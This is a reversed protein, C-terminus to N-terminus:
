GAVADLFVRVEQNFRDAAEANSLHGVGPMVVLKSAPIQSHLDRAVNLDSRVDQDGYLLLTPVNIKPLVSRLDALALARTIIKMGDPHFEGMIAAAERRVEPAVAPTLLGPLYKAVVEDAPRDLDALTQRLRQEVVPVPFSGSWGAYAGALVLSRPIDPHRRYLELALSAGFSLGAVHPQRLGLLDIFTALHDAYDAMDFTAPPDSSQGAGPADWAVVDYGGSLWEMQPRWTRSDSFFGHLLVLPAGYGMRRYHVDLGRVDVTGQVRGDGSSIV